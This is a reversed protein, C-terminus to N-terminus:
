SAKRRHMERLNAIHLLTQVTPFLERVHKRQPMAASNYNALFEQGPRTVVIRSGRRTALPEDGSLLPRLYRNDAQMLDDLDLDHNDIYRLMAVAAWSKNTM